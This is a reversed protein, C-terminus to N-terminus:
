VQRPNWGLIQEGDVANMQRYSTHALLTFQVQSFGLGEQDEVVIQSGVLLIRISFLISAQSLLSGLFFPALM